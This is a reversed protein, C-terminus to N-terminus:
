QRRMLVRRLVLSMSVLAVGIAAVLLLSLPTPHTLATVLQRAFSTALVVGPAMGIATGAMFDWFRIHSAGAALNVISFPAVPVLRLLIIAVLGKSRLRESLQNLREGALERVADRGLWAGAAWGAAAAILTGALAYAAGAVAGFVLGTVAILLTVPVSLLAAVAYMAVVAIPGFHTAALRQADATLKAFTLEHGFPTFRWAITLAVVGLALAGLVLLKAIVPRRTPEPLFQALLENAEIPAEPDLVHVRDAIDRLEPPVEPTLPVLTRASHGKLSAIAANLRGHRALAQEVDAESSDLHEALLRNRIRAIAAQRLPNDRADIVICCESDLVMSRNNLNASGIVLLRDDAIMIKSHVNIFRGNPADVAPAYMAYRGNSDAAELLKHLRARLVGMTAEQLWGSQRYPCVVALDPGNEEAIRKQLASGVSNATFYQNEVYINRRAAAVTALHLAKVQQIAPRGDYAPETLSIGLDIDAFDPEIRSPWLDTRPPPKGNFPRGAKSSRRSRRWRERALHAIAAAAPGDFMLQADHMPEYSTKGLNKRLPDDPRHEPTDWRSGTLDIGGTFALSDDIVVIKQHHSAGLPHRGDLRFWLRRHAHWAPKYSPLWEREFAYLMAFDWGLLYIRLQPNADLVACLFESLKPPFGDDVGGPVLEIRSDIDWGLIFISHRARPIMERLVAYYSAADILVSARHAKLIWECTSRTDMVEGNPVAPPADATDRSPSPADLLDSEIPDPESM